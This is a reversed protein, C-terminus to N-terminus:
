ATGHRPPWRRKPLSPGGAVQYLTIADEPYMSHCIAARALNVREDSDLLDQEAPTPQRLRPEGNVLIFIGIALCRFCLVVDGPKPKIPRGDPAAQRDNLRGCGPCVLDVDKQGCTHQESM